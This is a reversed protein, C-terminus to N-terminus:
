KLYYLLAVITAPVGGAIAGWVTANGKLKVIDVRLSEILRIIAAHEEHNRLLEEGHRRQTDIVLKQYQEWKGNDM